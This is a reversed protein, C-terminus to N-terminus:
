EYARLRTGDKDYLRLDSYEDVRAKGNCIASNIVDRWNWDIYGPMKKNEAEGTLYPENFEPIELELYVRAYYTKSM